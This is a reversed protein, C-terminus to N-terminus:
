GRIASSMARDGPGGAADMSTASWVSRDVNSVEASGITTANLPARVRAARCSDGLAIGEHLEGKPLMLRRNKVRATVVGTWMM